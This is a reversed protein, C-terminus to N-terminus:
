ARRQHDNPARLEGSSTIGLMRFFRFCLWRVFLQVSNVDLKLFFRNLIERGPSQCLIEMQSLVVEEIYRRERMNGGPTGVLQSAYNEEQGLIVRRNSVYDMWSEQSRAEALFNDNVVGM